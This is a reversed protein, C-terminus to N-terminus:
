TGKGKEQWVWAYSGYPQGDWNEVIETAAEAWCAPQRIM